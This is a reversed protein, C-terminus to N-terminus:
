TSNQRSGASFGIEEDNCYLYFSNEVGGLYVVVRKGQWDRPIDFERRYLGTPNAAPVDPPEAKFPMLVNTYIPRDAVDDYRTWLSPVAVSRWNSCDFGPSAWGPPVADPNPVRMFRWQGDLPLRRCANGALADPGSGYSAFNARAPLRGFAVTEPNERHKHSMAANGDFRDGSHYLLQRGDALFQVEHRNEGPGCGRFQM